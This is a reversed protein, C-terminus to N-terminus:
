KESNQRADCVAVKKKWFGAQSASEPPASKGRTEGAAVFM